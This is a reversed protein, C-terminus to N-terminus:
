GATGTPTTSGCTRARYKAQCHPCTNLGPSIIKRPIGKGCKPCALSSAPLVTLTDPAPPAPRTAQREGPLMRESLIEWKKMRFESESLVGQKQLNGLNQILEVASAAKNPPAGLFLAKGREFEEATIIGAIFLQGLREIDQAVSTGDLPINTVEVKSVTNQGVTARACAANIDNMLAMEDFITHGKLDRMINSYCRGIRLTTERLEPNNPDRKLQELCNEYAKRVKAKARRTIKVFLVLLLLLISVILPGPGFEEYLGYEVYVATIAIPIGVILALAVVLPKPLAQNLRM